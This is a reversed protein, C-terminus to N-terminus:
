PDPEQPPAATRVTEPCVVLEGVTAEVAATVATGVAERVFAGTATGVLAGIAIGVLAGKGSGVTTGVIAGVLSAGVVRGSIGAVKGANVAVLVLEARCFVTSSSM